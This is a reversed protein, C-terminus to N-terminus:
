YMRKEALHFVSMYLCIGLFQRMELELIPPIRGSQALHMRNTDLVILKLTDWGFLAM